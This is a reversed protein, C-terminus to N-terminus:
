GGSRKARGLSERLEALLGAGTPARLSLYEDLLRDLERLEADEEPRITGALKKDILYVRRESAASWNSETQEQEAVTPAPIDVYYDICLDSAMTGDQFQMWEAEPYKEASKPVGLDSRIVRGRTARQLAEMINRHPMQWRKKQAEDADVPIMAVLEPSTMMDLGFQKPTGTISGKHSVKYLVTRRLLAACTVADPDDQPWRHEHWSLWGAIQADGPFLLVKGDGHPGTLEIAMALSTENVAEPRDLRLRPIETATSKRGIQRWEVDDMVSVSDSAMDAATGFYSAFRPDTRAADAPIRDREDFPCAITRTGSTASKLAESLNVRPTPPGLFFVRAGPVGSLAVPGQGGRWYWVARGIRRVTDMAESAPSKVQNPAEGIGMRRRRELRTAEVDHPDETWGFWVQEVSMRAFIDRAYFFGSVHDWHRHTVVLVDLRGGTTREIDTAVARMAAKRGTGPSTGCDILMHFPVGLRPFTLLFCEGLGTRYMRVRVRQDLREAADGGDSRTSRPPKRSRAQRAPAKRTPSRTTRKKAM